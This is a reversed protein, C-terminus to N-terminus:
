KLYTNMKSLKNQDEKISLGMTGNVEKLIKRWEIEGEINKVCVNNISADFILYKRIGDLVEQNFIYQSGGSANLVKIREELRSKDQEQTTPIKGHKCEFQIREVNGKLNAMATGIKAMWEIKQDITKQMQVAARSKADSERQKIDAHWQIYYGLLGATFVLTFGIGKFLDLIGPRKKSKELAGVIENKIELIDDKSLSRNSTHNNGREEQAPNKDGEIM